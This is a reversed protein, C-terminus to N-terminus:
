KAHAITSRPSNSRPTSAMGKEPDDFIEIVVGASSFNEAVKNMSMQGVAATPLVLAWYKWGLKLVKPFWNKDGWAKDDPHLVGLKRDDSLWRDCKHAEFAVTCTNLFDRFAEGYTFKHFCHRIMRKEPYCWATAFENDVVTIRSM